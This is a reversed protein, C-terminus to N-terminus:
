VLEDSNQAESHYARLPNLYRQAKRYHARERGNSLSMPPPRLRLQSATPLGRWSPTATKRALIVM